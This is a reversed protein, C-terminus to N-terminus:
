SSDTNLGKEWSASRQCGDAVTTRRAARAASTILTTMTTVPPATRRVPEPSPQLVQGVQVPSLTVGVGAIPTCPIMSNVLRISM